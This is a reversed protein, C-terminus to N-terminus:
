TLVLLDTLDLAVAFVFYIIVASTPLLLRQFRVLKQVLESTSPNSLTQHNPLCLCNKSTIKHLVETFSLVLYGPRLAM